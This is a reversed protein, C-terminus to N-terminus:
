KQLYAVATKSLFDSQKEMHKKEKEIMEDIEGNAKGSKVCIGLTEISEMTLKSGQVLLLLMQSFESQRQDQEKQRQEQEKQREEFRKDQEKERKELRKQARWVIMGVAASFVTQLGMFLIQLVLDM